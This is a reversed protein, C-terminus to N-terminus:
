GRVEWIGALVAVALVVRVDLVESVVPVNLAALAMLVVLAIM